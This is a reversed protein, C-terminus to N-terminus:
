EIIKYMKINIDMDKHEIELSDANSGFRIEVNESTLGGNEIKLLTNTKRSIFYYNFFEGFRTRYIRYLNEKDNFIISKQNIFSQFLLIELDSKITNIISPRDLQELCFVKKFENNKFEFEFIKIGLENMFVVRISSDPLRKFLTLGSLYNGYINVSSKYLIKDTTDAFFVPIEQGKLTLEEIKNLKAYRSTSCAVLLMILLSNLLLSKM